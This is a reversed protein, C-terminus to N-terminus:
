IGVRRLRRNEEEIFLYYKLLSAPPYFSIIQCILIPTLILIGDSWPLYIPFCHFCHFVIKKPGWIVASPSHLWSILLCKSRPLFTIILRSLMNFLLSMVKGVFTQRTLAITKGTTRYPHSVQVIFFASRGLISAKSSHLQLLSKLLGKSQLSIWGTWGSPFWDQTNMPLVSASASAGINQSGSVVLQSMLFSGSSPFTQLHSSFPVLSSSITPHWWWSSPCSHSCAGPSPSPCPLRAHQLGHPWLSHSMVSCSFLLLMHLM